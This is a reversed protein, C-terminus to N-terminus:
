LSASTYHGGEYLDPKHAPRSLAQERRKKHAM